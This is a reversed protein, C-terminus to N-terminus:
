GKRTGTTTSSVGSWSSRTGSRNRSTCHVRRGPPVFESAKTSWTRRNTDSSAGVDVVTLLPAGPDGVDIAPAADGRDVGAVEGENTAQITPPMRIRAIPYKTASLNRDIFCATGDALSGAVGGTFTASTLSLDIATNGNASMLSFCSWSYKESPRASSTSSLSACSGLMLTIARVGDNENLPLGSSM